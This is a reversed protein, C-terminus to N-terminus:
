VDRRELREGDVDFAVQSRRERADPSCANAHLQRRGLDLDADAGPIRRGLLSPAECRVRGVDQDRRRLRQEQEKSRLRALRQAVDIRHDHVLDVGDRPCLPARMQDQAELTEIVQQLFRGPTDPERRGNTRGLFDRAEEAADM